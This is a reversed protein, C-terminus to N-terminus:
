KTLFECSNLRDFLLNWGVRAFRAIWYDSFAIPVLWAVPLHGKRAKDTFTLEEYKLWKEGLRWGVKSALKFYDKGVCDHLDKVVSFGLKGGSYRLWLRDISLLDTCPFTEIDKQTISRNKRRDAGTIILMLRRTELDAERWRKAILLNRLQTYDAGTDSPWPFYQLLRKKGKNNAKEWLLDYALYQLEGRETTLIKFLLKIGDNGYKLVLKLSAIKFEDDRYKNNLAAEIKKFELPNIKVVPPKKHSSSITDFRSSLHNQYMKYEYEETCVFIIKKILNNKQLFGEIVQAIAIQFGRDPPIGNKGTAIAPIAITEIPYNQCMVLCNRYCQALIEDEKKGSVGEVWIPGATQIIWKAPLNYGPTIRAEGMKLPTLQRYGDPKGPLDIDTVLDKGSIFCNLPNVVADVDQVIADVDQEIINGRIIEILRNSFNFKERDTSM